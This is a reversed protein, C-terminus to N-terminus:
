RLAAVIDPALTDAQPGEPRLEVDVEAGLEVGIDRRWAVGLALFYLRGDSGFSGRV